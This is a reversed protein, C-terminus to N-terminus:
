DIGPKGEAFVRKDQRSLLAQLAMDYDMSEGSWRSQRTEASRLGTSVNALPQLGRLSGMQPAKAFLPRVVPLIEEGCRNTFELTDNDKTNISFEGHHLARHHFRCLTVLNDLSTEGGDAWHKIHHADVYRSCQCGPFRCGEDRIDLARRIHPPVIRSRRGINLVKGDGDELVTVLSADCSLRRATNPHLWQDQELRCHKQTSNRQLTEIDVHLMVQTRESGKLAAIGNAASALYHEAMATLADARRQGFTSIPASTELSTEASVNSVGTADLEEREADMVANLANVLQNGAEAPLRAKIVVMGDDDHYCVVKRAEQQIEEQSKSQLRQARRHLRILREVHSATGHEAIYLYYDETADTAARTLARVMSYSIEGREFAANILPLKDLCRAVRVKERAAGAEIGCKWGLWHACSKIGAGQWGGLRDFEAVLKLFRYNAANIHGALHTIENALMDTNEFRTKPLSRPLASTM